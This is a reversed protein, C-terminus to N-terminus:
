PEWRLDPLKNANIQQVSGDAFGIVLRRQHHGKLLEPGGAQNWGGACEFILVTQPNVKKHDVGGLRGNFAYSGRSHSKDGPCQFVKPSGVYSQIQDCWKGATPLSDKNDSAYMLVALSLQRVNNVCNITQARDRASAVAPLMLAAMLPLMLLFCASTCIGAIAVGKGGIAGQSKGIKVLAVIGLILGVLATAGMSCIGLIGLVLSAIALGSTKAPRALGAPLGPSTAAGFMGSFQPLSGVAAWQAAGDALIQSQPTLRGQSIWARLENESVPGYIKGDIGQVKYM